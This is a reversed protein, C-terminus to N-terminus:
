ADLLFDRFAHNVAHNFCIGNAIRDLKANPDFEM